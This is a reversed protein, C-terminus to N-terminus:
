AATIALQKGKQHLLFISEHLADFEVLILHMFANLASQCHELSIDFTSQNIIRIFRKVEHNEVLNHLLYFLSVKDNLLRQSNSFAHYDAEGIKGVDLGTESKYKAPLRRYILGQGVVPKFRRVNAKQSDTIKNIVAAFFFNFDLLFIKQSFSARNM